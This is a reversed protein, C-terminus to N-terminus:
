GNLLSPHPTVPSQPELSTWNSGTWDGSLMATFARAEPLGQTSLWSAGVANSGDTWWVAAPHLSRSLERWALGNVARQLSHAAGLPARWNATHAPFASAHLASTLSASESAADAAFPQGLQAVQEDFQDIDLTEAALADLALAEAAEFWPTSSCAVDLPCHDDTLPAVITLPFYRGVRDVSPVLVGAYAGAGCAGASLAFRWIPGTLYRDLWEDQLAEKSAHICSQLWADWVEVFENPARRQLFDGRCPLKGYFGTEGASTM